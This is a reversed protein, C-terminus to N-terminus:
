IALHLKILAQIGLSEFDLSLIDLTLIANNHKIRAKKANAIVAYELGGGSM